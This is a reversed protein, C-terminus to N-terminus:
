KTGKPKIGREILLNHLSKLRRKITRRSIYSLDKEINRLTMGYHYRCVLLELDWEEFIGHSKLFSVFNPLSFTPQHHEFFATSRNSVDLYVTKKDRMQPLLKELHPCPARTLECKHPCVWIEAFTASPKKDKNSM